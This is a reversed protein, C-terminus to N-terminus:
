IEIERLKREVFDNLRESINTIYGGVDETIYWVSGDFYYECVGIGPEDRYGVHIIWQDNPVPNFHLKWGSLQYWYLTTDPLCRSKDLPILKM